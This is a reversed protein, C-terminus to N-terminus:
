VRSELIAGCRRFHLEQEDTYKAGRLDVLYFDVDHLKAGRLDAGCLNAKRIEEPAKFEQEEYEDTYFGTRSGESAIPSGVLGSRSSGLHFTAGRLDADVLDAREWEIDALGTDRLDARRFKGHPIQTGTLRARRLNAENFNGGPLIMNELDCEYLVAYEFSAGAFDARHLELRSLDAWCLAAGAFSADDIKCQQFWACNLDARCFRAGRLDADHFYASVFSGGTLDANTLDAENFDANKARVQSLDAEALRARPASFGSLLSGHLNIATLNAEEASVHSLRSEHLDAVSLDANDINLRRLRVGPWSLGPLYAGALLPALGTKPVWADGAAHLLSIATAHMAAVDGAAAQRLKLLVPEAHRIRSAVAEVYSPPLPQRLVDLSARSHLLNSLHEAALLLRVPEMRLLPLIGTGASRLQKIVDFNPQKVSPTALLDFCAKAVTDFSRKLRRVLAARLASSVDPLSEDLALEDLVWCWLHATGALRRRAPDRRVRQMVSGCRDRHVALLYEIWEDEGWPVLRWVEAAHDISMGSPVYVVLRHTAATALAECAIPGPGDDLELVPDNGFLHALHAIATSKGTGPGGHLAIVGPKHAELRAAVEEELLVAGEAGALYVRPRVAARRPEIM